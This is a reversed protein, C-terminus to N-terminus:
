LGAKPPSPNDDPVLRHVWILHSCVEGIRLQPAFRLTGSIRTYPLITASFSPRSLFEPLYPTEFRIPRLATLFITIVLVFVSPNRATNAIIM